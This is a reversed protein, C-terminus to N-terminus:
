LRRTRRAKRKQKKNRKSHRRKGGMQGSNTLYKKIRTIIAHAENKSKGSKHTLTKNVLEKIKSNATGNRISDIVETAETETLKFDNTLSKGINSYEKASPTSSPTMSMEIKRVCKIITTLYDYFNINNKPVFM